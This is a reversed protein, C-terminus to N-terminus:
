IKYDELFIIIKGNLFFIKKKFLLLVKSISEFDRLDCM